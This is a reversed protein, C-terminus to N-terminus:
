RVTKWYLVTNASDEDKKTSLKYIHETTRISYNSCIKNFKNVLEPHDRFYENMKDLSKVSTTKRHKKLDSEFELQYQKFEPVLCTLLFPVISLYQTQFVVEKFKSSGFDMYAKTPIKPAQDVRGIRLKSIKCNVFSFSNKTEPIKQIHLNDTQLNKITYGGRGYNHSVIVKYIKPFKAFDMINSKTPNSIYLRLKDLTIESEGVLHFKPNSLLEIFKSLSDDWEGNFLQNDCGIIDYNYPQPKSQITVDYGEEILELITNYRLSLDYTEFICYPREGNMHAIIKNGNIEVSEINGTGMDMYFKLRDHDFNNLRQLTLLELGAHDAQDLVDDEDDLISELLYNKIHKM